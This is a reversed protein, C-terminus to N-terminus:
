SMTRVTLGSSFLGFGRCRVVVDGASAGVQRRGSEGCRDPRRPRHDPRRRTVVLLDATPLSRCFLDHRACRGRRRLHFSLREGARRRTRGAGDDDVSRSETGAVSETQVDLVAFERERVQLHHTIDEVANEYAFKGARLFTGCGAEDCAAYGHEANVHVNRFRIGSSRFMRAAAAAPAYSRSVRYAHYNAFTINKSATVELSVAEASTSVEEETQPGYFEWNEVRDLKIEGFLHHEASLEYVHGPTTTDSVYFGTRAFTNPSWVDHVNRRRRAHGVRERVARGVARCRLRAAADPPIFRRGACEAASFNWASGHIHVDDM